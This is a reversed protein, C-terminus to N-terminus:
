HINATIIITDHKKLIKMSNNSNLAHLIKDLSENNVFSAYYQTNALAQGEVIINVNFHRELDAAIDELNQNIFRIYNGPKSFYSSPNITHNEVKGNKKNYRIFEGPKLTQIFSDESAGAEMTVSGSILALEINNQEAFAKLHFETGHVKINVNNASVIFPKDPDKTVDAFIEGDIYITRTDSDFRSPYIVKTGSNITLATGDALILSETEGRGAYTEHWRVPEQPKIFSHALILITAVAAAVSSLSACIIRRRTKQERKKLECEFEIFADIKKESQKFSDVDNDPIVNDFLSDFEADFDSDNIHAALWATAASETEPNTEGKLYDKVFDPMKKDKENKM